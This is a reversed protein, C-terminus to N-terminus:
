DLATEGNPIVVVGGSNQPNDLICKKIMFNGGSNVTGWTTSGLGHLADVGPDIGPAYSM